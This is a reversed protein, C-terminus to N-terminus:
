SVQVMFLLIQISDYLAHSIILPWIRRIRYYFFGMVLGQIGVSVIGFAGQYLHVFGAFASVVVISLIEWAKRNSLGWLCRLFFTRVLEEFIAVGIWVVPGLWLALLVPNNALSIMLDIVEQLPPEGQPLIAPLTARGVVMLLFYIIALGIGYFINSYWKGKDPSFDCIKGKLLYKNLAIILLSNGGGFVLPYVLMESITFSDPHSLRYWIMLINVPLIGICIALLYNLKKILDV